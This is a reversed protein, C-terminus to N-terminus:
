LLRRIEKTLLEPAELDVFHGIDPLPRWEVETHADLHSKQAVKSSLAEDSMGWVLTVPTTIPTQYVKELRQRESPLLLTRVVARYYDIAGRLDAPHQYREVMTKVLERNMEGKPGERLTFSLELLKRGIATTLLLEPVKPTQFPLVWPIRFTQWDELQFVARVLTKPHTCNVVILRSILNSFRHAFIWGLAGGWDHTLLVPKKLKLRHILARVDETLNFVDYGERPYPPQKIKKGSGTAMKSDAMKSDPEYAIPYGRLDPAYITAEPLFDMLQRWSQWGEPFGHLCLIPPVARITQVRPHSIAVHFDLGNARVNKHEIIAKGKGEALSMQESETINNSGGDSTKNDSPAVNSAGATGDSSASPNKKRTKVATTM